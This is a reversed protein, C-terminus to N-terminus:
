DVWEMIKARDGGWVALAFYVGPNDIWEVVLAPDPKKKTWEDPQYLVGMWVTRSRLKVYDPSTLLERVRAPIPPLGVATYDLKRRRLGPVEIKLGGVHLTSPKQSWQQQTGNSSDIPKRPDVVAWVPAGDARSLNLLGALDIKRGRRSLIARRIAPRKHSRSYQRLQSRLGSNALLTDRSDMEAKLGGRYRARIEQAARRLDRVDCAALGRTIRPSLAAEIPDATKTKTATM